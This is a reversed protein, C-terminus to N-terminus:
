IQELSNYEVAHPIEPVWLCPYELPTYSFRCEEFYICLDKFIDGPKIGKICCGICCGSLALSLFLLIMKM